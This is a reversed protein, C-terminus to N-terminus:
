GQTIRHTNAVRLASRAQTPTAAVHATSPITNHSTPPVAHLVAQPLRHRPHMRPSAQEDAPQQQQYEHAARRRIVPVLDCEPHLGLQVRCGSRRGREGRRLRRLQGHAGQLLARGIRRAPRDVQGVLAIRQDLGGPLIRRFFVHRALLAAIRQAVLIDREIRRTAQLRGFRAVGTASVEQVAQVEVQVVHRRDPAAPDDADARHEHQHRDDAAHDRVLADELVEEREPRLFALARPQVRVVCGGHQRQRKM